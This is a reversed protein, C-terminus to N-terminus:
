KVLSERRPCLKLAKRRQWISKELTKLCLIPKTLLYGDTKKARKGTQRCLSIQLLSRCWIQFFSTSPLRLQTWFAHPRYQCKWCQQICIWGNALSTGLWETGPECFGQPIGGNHQKAKQNPWQNLLHFATFLKRKIKLFYSLLFWFKLMFLSVWDTIISDPLGHHRVVVDIIVEVLVLADITIKVLKYHVM